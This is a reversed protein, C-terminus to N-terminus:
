KRAIVQVWVASGTAQGGKVQIESFGADELVALLQDPMWYCFFRPAGLKEDTWKEGEGQKVTFAFIGGEKLAAFAKAIAQKAEERTFHLLVAQALVMDYPGGYEGNIADLERANFGHENLYEVFARTADTCEVKFGMNQLYAADRGFASGVELIKADQPLKGVAADLWEKVVGDVTQPTGDIYEKVHDEYAQLTKQNSDNM